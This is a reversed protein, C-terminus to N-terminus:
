EAAAPASRARWRRRALTRLGALDSAWAIIGYVAGGAATTALLAVLPPELSRLPVIAATMAGTALAAAALDRWPLRMRNPGTLALAGLIGV